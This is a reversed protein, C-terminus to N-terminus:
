SSLVCTGVIREVGVYREIELATSRREVRLIRAKRTKLKVVDKLFTQSTSAGIRQDVTRANKRGETRISKVIMKTTTKFNIRFTQSIIFKRSPTECTNM